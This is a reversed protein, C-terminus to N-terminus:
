RVIFVLRFPGIADTPQNSGVTGMTVGIVRLKTVSLCVHPSTELQSWFLGTKKKKKFLVLMAAKWVPVASKFHWRLIRDEDEYKITGKLVADRHLRWMQPSATRVPAGGQQGCTLGGRENRHKMFAGHVPKWGGDKRVRSQFSFLLLTWRICCFGCYIEGRKM